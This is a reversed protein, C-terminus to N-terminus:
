EALLQHAEEPKGQCQWLRALNMAARLELSKAQQYRAIDLAHRFSAEVEARVPWQTAAMKSPEPPTPHIDHRGAQQALRLEGTLRHLEAEWVREGTKHGEALAEALVQLGADAAGAQGYGEALLALFYPRWVAVGTAEYATLRQRM